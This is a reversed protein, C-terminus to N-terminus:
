LSLLCLMYQAPAPERVQLFYQRVYEAAGAVLAAAGSSGDGLRLAQQNESLLVGPRLRAHVIDSRLRVHVQEALSGDSAAAALPKM